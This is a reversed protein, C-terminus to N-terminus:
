DDLSKLIALLMSDRYPDTPGYNDEPIIDAFYLQSPSYATVSPFKNQIAELLLHQDICVAINLTASYAQQLAELSSILAQPPCGSPLCTRCVAVAKKNLAALYLESTHQIEKIGLYLKM